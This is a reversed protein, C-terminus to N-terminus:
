LATPHCLRRPPGKRRSLSPRLLRGLRQQLSWSDVQGSEVTWGGVRGGARYVATLARPPWASRPKETSNDRPSGPIVWCFLFLKGLFHPRRKQEDVGLVCPPQHPQCLWPPSGLHYGPGCPGPGPSTWRNKGPPRPPGTRPASSASSSSASSSSPLLCFIPGQQSESPDQDVSEEPGSGCRASPTARM